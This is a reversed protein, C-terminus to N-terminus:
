ACISGAQMEVVTEHEIEVFYKSVWLDKLERRTTHTPEPIRKKTDIDYYNVVNLIDTEM